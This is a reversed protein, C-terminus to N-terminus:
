QLVKQVFNKSLKRSQFLSINVVPIRDFSLFLDKIESSNKSQLHLINIRIFLKNLIDLLSIYQIRISNYDYKWIPNLTFKKYTLMRRDDTFQCATVM